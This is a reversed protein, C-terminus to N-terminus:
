NAKNTIKKISKQLFCYTKRSLDVANMIGIPVLTCLLPVFIYIYRSRVEFLMEYLIFGLIVIWIVSLQEKYKITKKSLVSLSSLALIFLWSIHQITEFYLSNEGKHYISKLFVSAKSNINEPVNYFFRGELTWAFTGDNFTSLLKKKLHTFLESKMTVIREKFVSINAKTREEKTDFSSSYLVDELSYAGNQEENLGMMLFHTLGLTKNEDLQVNYKKNLLNISTNITTFTTITILCISILFLLSKLSFKSILKIIEIIAIAILVFLCQPKIFYGVASITVSSLLGIAKTKKNKYQKSYLYVSLIPIFLALADSYGIVTWGSIGVSFVCLIYAFLAFLPTTFTKATKYALWCSFSNIICNVIVVCMYSYEGNYIGYYTNIKQLFLYFYSIFLNNPYLSFYENVGTLDGKNIITDAFSRLLLTDWDSVFFINYFVYCQGLFLILTAIFVIKDFNITTDKKLFTKKNKIWYYVSIFLLLFTLILAFIIVNSLAFELKRNYAINTSFLLLGIITVFVFGYLMKIISFFKSNM